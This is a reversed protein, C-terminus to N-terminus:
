ALLATMLTTLWHEYARGSWDRDVVLRRYNEVSVLAWVADADRAVSRSPRRIVSRVFWACDDHRRQAAASAAEAVTADDEAAAFAITLLRWSREHARRIIRGFEAIAASAESKQRLRQLQPNSRLPFDPHSGVADSVVAVLLDGKTRWSKFVSAESVGASKAIAATSTSAYGNAIFLDTAANLVRGRTAAARAQRTPSAYPRRNVDPAM